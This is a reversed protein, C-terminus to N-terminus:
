RLQYKIALPQDWFTELTISVINLVKFNLASCNIRRPFYYIPKQVLQNTRIKGIKDMMQQLRILVDQNLYLQQLWFYKLTHMADLAQYSMVRPLEETDDKQEEVQDSRLHDAIIEDEDPTYTVEEEAPYHIIVRIDM